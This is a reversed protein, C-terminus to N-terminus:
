IRGSRGDFNSKGMDKLIEGYAGFRRILDEKTLEWDELRYKHRSVYNKEPQGPRCFEDFSDLFGNLIDSVVHKEDGVFHKFVVDSVRDPNSSRYGLGNNLMVKLKNLWHSKLICKDVDNTFMSRGYYLMSLYSPICDEIDRHMWIIYSDSFTSSFEHLYQLHHPSKLVWFKGGRQWQLLKLLKKEYAYAQKHDQSELWRAYSPVHMIAESSSSMFHVDLLLVDEEPQDTHIPHISQFVPSVFKVVRENRRTRAIRKKSEAVKRIPAPYLAEWSSLARAGHQISLLRQMKTTGTRQLGTIMLVPLVDRELIEPYKHFWYEAWLRNELQSILKERMMLNGFPHLRAEKNISRVLIKLAEDNFDAGLNNLSTNRRARKLIKDFDLKGSVGISKSLRNCFNILFPRKERKLM